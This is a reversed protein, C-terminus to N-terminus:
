VRLHHKRVRRTLAAKKGTTKLGAHKLARKLHKVTHHKRRGGTTGSAPSDM